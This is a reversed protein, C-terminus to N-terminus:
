EPLSGSWREPTVLLTTLRYRRNDDYAAGFACVWPENFGSLRAMKLTAKGGGGSPAMEMALPMRSELVLVEMERWEEASIASSEWGPRLRVSQGLLESMRHPLKSVPVAIVEVDREFNTEPFELSEGEPWFIELHVGAMVGQPPTLQIGPSEGAPPFAHYEHERWVTPNGVHRLVITRGGPWSQPTTQRWGDWHHKSTAEFVRVVPVEVAKWELEVSRLTSWLPLSGRLPQAGLGSPRVTGHLTTTECKFGFGAELNPAAVFWREFEVTGTVRGVVRVTELQYARYESDPERLSVTFKMDSGTATYSHRVSRFEERQVKILGPSGGGIWGGFLNLHRSKKVDRARWPRYVCEVAYSEGTTAASRLTFQIEGPDVARGLPHLNPDSASMTFAFWVALIGRAWPFSRAVVWGVFEVATIM